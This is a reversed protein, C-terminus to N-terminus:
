ATEKERGPSLECHGVWGRPPHLDFLRDTSERMRKMLVPDNSRIDIAEPDGGM